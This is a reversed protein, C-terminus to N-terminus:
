NLVYLYVKFDCCLKPQISTQPDDQSGSMLITGALFNSWAEWPFAEFMDLSSSKVTETHVPELAKGGKYLVSKRIDLWMKVKQWQGGYGKMRESHTVPYYGCILDNGSASYSKAWSEAILEVANVLNNVSHIHLWQFLSAHETACNGQRSM